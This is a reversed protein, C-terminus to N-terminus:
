DEVLSTLYWIVSFRLFGRSSPAEFIYCSYFHSLVQVLMTWCDGPEHEQWWADKVTFCQSFSTFFSWNSGDMLYKEGGRFLWSASLWQVILIICTKVHVHDDSAMTIAANMVGAGSKKTIDDRCLVYGQEVITALWALLSFTHNVSDSQLANSGGGAGRRLCEVKVSWDWVAQNYSWGLLIHSM